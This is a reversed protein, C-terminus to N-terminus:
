QESTRNGMCSVPLQRPSLNPWSNQHSAISASWGCSCELVCAPADDAESYLIRGTHGDVEIGTDIQRGM